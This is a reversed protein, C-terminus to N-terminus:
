DFIIVAKKIETKLEKEAINKLKKLIQSSIEEPSFEKTKTIVKITNNEGEKIQFEFKQDKIEDFNKGMLRKISSIEDIISPIIDRGKDDQFFRVTENEDIVCILSNTTGLDIGVIVDEEQKEEKKVPELINILPM